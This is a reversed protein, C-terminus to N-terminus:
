NEDILSEMKKLSGKRKEEEYIYSACNERKDIWDKKSRIKRAEIKEQEFEHLRNKISRIKKSENENLIRKEILNNLELELTRIEQQIHRKIRKGNRIFIEKMKEKM